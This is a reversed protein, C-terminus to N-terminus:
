YDLVLSNSTRKVQALGLATMLLNAAVVYSIDYHWNIYNGFFGERFLEICHVTPLLLAWRQATEPLMSVIYFAGSLPLFLYITPHWLRDVIDYREASAGVLLSLGLAFWALLLWGLFLKLPDHPWDVLGMLVFLLTLAVLSTTAGIAELFIRSLFIDIPKVPRHYMLSGNPLIAGVCRSPMNRWLLVTSYGSLVFATITIGPFTHGHGGQINWLITIGLTFMMPEAFLWLFGINHRGYRTLVERMLL